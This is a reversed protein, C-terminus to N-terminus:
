GWLTLTNTNQGSVSMRTCLLVRSNNFDYRTEGVVEAALGLPDLTFPDLRTPVDYEARPVGFITLLRDAEAQADAENAFLSEIIKIPATPAARKFAYNTATVQRADASYLQISSLAVGALDETRQITYNQSWKLIVMQVPPMFRRVSMGGVINATGMDQGRKPRTLTFDGTDGPLAIYGVRLQGLMTFHWHGACGALIANLAAAKTVEQSGDFYIGITAAQAADMATFSAEDIDSTTLKSTGYGMVVRRAIAARKYVYGAVGGITDADGQADITITKLPVSGLRILGLARCTAYKGAAISAAVLAAYTTVNGSTGVTTDLALPSGGERVATVAQASGLTFQWVNNTANILIPSANFVQGLLWPKLRNAITADGNIDGEGTYREDHLPAELKWAYPRLQIQKATLDYVIGASSMKAVTSWTDFRATADGRLLEITAGDWQRKVLYDLDGTLDNVTMVGFSSGSGDQSVGGSLANAFNWNAALAPRVWSNSALDGSAATRGITAAVYATSPISYFAEYFPDEFGVLGGPLPPGDVYEVGALSLSTVKLLYATTM